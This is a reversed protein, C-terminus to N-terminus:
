CILPELYSLMIPPKLYVKMIGDAAGKGSIQPLSSFSSSSTHSSNFAFNSPILSMKPSSLSSVALPLFFFVHPHIIPHSGAQLFSLLERLRNACAPRDGPHRCNFSQLKLCQGSDVTCQGSDM